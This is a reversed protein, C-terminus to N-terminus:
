SMMALGSMGLNEKLIIQSCAVFVKDIGQTDTACTDFLYVDKVRRAPLGDLMFDQIWKLGDRYKFSKPADPFLGSVNLPVKQECLKEKFLDSKNLFLIMPTKTFWQDMVTKQFLERAEVLRNVKTDEFLVQDYEQMAVVYIVAAVNEFSHIWKKRENRQGGVDVFRFPVQHIKLEEEVIGTTRVRARIIDNVSPTWKPGGWKPFTKLEMVLYDLNDQLQFESRRSFAQKVGKDVWLGTIADTIEQTLNRLDTNSTIFEARAASEPESFELGLGQMGRLLDAFGEILNNILKPKYGALIEKSFDLGSILQMQKFVTSKGSEGAGLLLIKITKADAQMDERQKKEIEKDRKTKKLVKSSKTGM